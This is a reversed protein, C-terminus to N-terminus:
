IKLEIGTKGTSNSVLVQFVDTRFLIHTIYYIPRKYILNAIELSPIHLVKGAYVFNKSYWSPNKIVLVYRIASWFNQFYSKSSKFLFVSFSPECQRNPVFILLILSNTCPIVLLDLFWQHILELKEDWIRPWLTLKIIQWKMFIKFKLHLKLKLFNRSIPKVFNQLYQLITRSFLYHRAHIIYYPLFDM